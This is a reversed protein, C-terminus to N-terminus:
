ECVNCDGEQELGQERRWAHLFRTAGEGQDYVRGDGTYSPRSTSLVWQYVILWEVAEAARPSHGSFVYRATSVANEDVVVPAAMPRLDSVCWDCPEDRGQRARHGHLFAAAQSATPHVALGPPLGDLSQLSWTYVAAADGIDHWGSQHELMVFATNTAAGMDLTPAPGIFARTPVTDLRPHEEDYTTEDHGAADDPDLPHHHPLASM